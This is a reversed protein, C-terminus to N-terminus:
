NKLILINNSFIISNKIVLKHFDGKFIFKGEFKHFSVNLFNISKRKWFNM